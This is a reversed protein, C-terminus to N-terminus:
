QAAEVAAVAAKVADAINDAGTVGMLDDVLGEYAAAILRQEALDAAFDDRVSILLEVLSTEFDRSDAGEPLWQERFLEARETLPLRPDNTM